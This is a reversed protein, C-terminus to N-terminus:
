ILAKLHPIMQKLFDKSLHNSYLFRRKEKSPCPDSARSPLSMRFIEFRWKKWSILFEKWPTVWINRFGWWFKKWIKKEVFVTALPTWLKQMSSPAVQRSISWHCFNKSWNVGSMLHVFASFKLNIDQDTKFYHDFSQFIKAVSPRSGYSIPWNRSSYAM